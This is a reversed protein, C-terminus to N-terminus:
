PKIGDILDSNDREEYNLATLKRIKFTERLVIVTGALSVNFTCWAAFMKTMIEMQKIIGALQRPDEMLAALAVEIYSFHNSILVAMIITSVVFPGVFFWVKLSALNELCKCWFDSWYIKAGESLKSGM